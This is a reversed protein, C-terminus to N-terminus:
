DALRIGTHADVVRCGSGFALDGPEVFVARQGVEFVGDAFQDVGLAGSREDAIVVIRGGGRLAHSM